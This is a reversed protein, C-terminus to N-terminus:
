MLMFIGNNIGSVMMIKMVVVLMVMLIVIMTVRIGNM